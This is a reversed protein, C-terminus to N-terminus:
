KADRSINQIYHPLYWDPLEGKWEIYCVAKNKSYFLPTNGIINKAKQPFPVELFIGEKKKYCNKATAKIKHDSSAFKAVSKHIAEDEAPLYYYNKYDAFFFYGTTQYLPLTVKCLNQEYSLSLKEAKYQIKQPFYGTEDFSILLFDQNQTVQGSTLYVEGSLPNTYFLLQSCLFTGIIDDYNHILLKKECDNREEENQYYKNKMYNVYLEICDKGSFTDKRQIHLFKEMSTLKLNSLPFFQKFPKFKKYLDISEIRDFPSPLSHQHYKKELYPIDFGSGNYHFLYHFNQVYEYFSLLLEKESVYDDAFWQTLVFNTNEEGDTEFHGCGILYLSSINASLGTTEIDFFCINSISYDKLASLANQFSSSNLLLLSQYTQM